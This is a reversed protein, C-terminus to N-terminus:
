CERWSDYNRSWGITCLGWFPLFLSKYRRDNCRYTFTSNIVVASLHFYNM